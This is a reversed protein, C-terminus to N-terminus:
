SGTRRPIRFSLFRRWRRFPIIYFMAIALYGIVAIVPVFLGAVSRLLHRAAGAPVVIDLVLLTIAIAYVGDSLAELRGTQLGRRLPGPPPTGNTV